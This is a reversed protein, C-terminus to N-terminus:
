TLIEQLRVTNSLEKFDKPISNRKDLSQELFQDLEIIRNEDNINAKGSARLELLKMLENESSTIRAKYHTIQSVVKELFS